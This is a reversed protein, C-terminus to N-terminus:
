PVPCAHPDLALDDPHCDDRPHDSSARRCVADHCQATRLGQGRFFEGCEGRRLEDDAAGSGGNADRERRKEPHLFDALGNRINGM